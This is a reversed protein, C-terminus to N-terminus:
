AETEKNSTLADRFDQCDHRPSPGPVQRTSGPTGQARREGEGECGLGYTRGSDQKNLWRPTGGLDSYQSGPHESPIDARSLAPSLWAPQTSDGQCKSCLSVWILSPLGGSTGLGTRM